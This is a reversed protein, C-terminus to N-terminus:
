VLAAPVDIPMAYFVVCSLTGVAGANPAAVVKLQITADAALETLGGTMLTNQLQLMIGVTKRWDQEDVYADGTGIDGTLAVTTALFADETTNTGVCVTLTETGTDIDDGYVWGGLIVAGKPVKCFQVVDNIILATAAEYTGWAVCCNGFSGAYMPYGTNAPTAKYTTAM